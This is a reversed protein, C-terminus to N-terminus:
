VLDSDVSVRYYGVNQMDVDTFQVDFQWTEGSAIQDVDEEEELSNTFVDIENDEEDFLTVSVEVSNATEDGTNEIEGTVSASEGSRSFQHSLIEFNPDTDEDVEGDLVGASQNGTENGASENGTGGAGDADGDLTITYSTVEAMQAEEFLVDFQWSEGPPLSATQAEESEDIFEYLIEGQDDQLTVEAEVTAYEGNGTNEVTGRLGVEGNTEYLERGTVELGPPSDGLEGDIDSIDGDTTGTSENGTTENGMTTTENGSATTAAAETDTVAETETAESGSQGGCGALGLGGALAGTTKLLQRRHM